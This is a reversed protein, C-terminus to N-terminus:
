KKIAKIRGDLTLLNKNIESLNFAFSEQVGKLLNKNDEINSSTEAQLKEVHVLSKNFDVAKKHIGELAKLREVTQPLIQGIKEHDKVLDYIELIKKDGEPDPVIEKKKEAINDLKQALATLRGEIHDLQSSDLMSATACLHQATEYLTGKSTLTSLRSLKESDSGLVTELRHLRRELDALRNTQMLQAQEPRYQLQFTIGDGIEGPEQKISPQNKFQDLQAFLKKIQDGQPDMISSTIDAGLSQELKLDKLKKLNLEIQKGNVICSDEKKENKVQNIEELLESMECQLRQYKQLITEKEGQGVLEYSYGTSMNRLIRDSFDVKNSNLIKGKYRNFAETPSINMKEVVDSEEEYFDSTQDAEPLDTTEYVDPEDHAIGPLDAYKPDAM